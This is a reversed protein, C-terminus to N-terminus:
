VDIQGTSVITNVVYCLFVTIISRNVNAPTGNSRIIHATCAQLTNSLLTSESQHNSDHQLGSLSSDSLCEKYIYFVNLLAAIVNSNKNRSKLIRYIYSFVLEPQNNFKAM